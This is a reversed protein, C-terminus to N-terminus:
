GPRGGRHHSRPTEGLELSLKGRGRMAIPPGVSAGFSQRMAFGEFRCALTWSRAAPHAGVLSLLLVFGSVPRETWLPGLQLVGPHRCPRPRAPAPCLWFEGCPRVEAQELAEGGPLRRVGVRRESFSYSNRSAAFFRPAAHPPLHGFEPRSAPDLARNGAKNRKDTELTRSFRASGM